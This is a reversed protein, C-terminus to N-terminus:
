KSDRMKSAEFMFILLSKDANNIPLSEAMGGHQKLSRRIRVRVKNWQMNDANSFFYALWIELNWASYNKKM